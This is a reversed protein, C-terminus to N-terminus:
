AAALHRERKIKIARIVVVLLALGCLWTVLAAVPSDPDGVMIPFDIEYPQGELMMELRVHYKGAEAYVPSFKHLKEEYRTQVPGFITKKGGVGDRTVSAEIRGGFVSAKDAKKYVYAHMQSLEGPIPKGPYGTLELIYPGAGVKYTIVPAQPYHEDYSYHPIGMIHHAGTGSALVLVGLIPFLVSSMKMTM